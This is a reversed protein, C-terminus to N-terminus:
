YSGEVRNGRPLSSPSQIENKQWICVTSNIRSLMFNQRPVELSTDRTFKKTFIGKEGLGNRIQGM